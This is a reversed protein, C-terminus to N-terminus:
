VDAASKNKFTNRPDRTDEDYIIAKLGSPGTGIHSKKLSIGMEEDRIIAYLNNVQEILSSIENHLKIAQPLKEIEM